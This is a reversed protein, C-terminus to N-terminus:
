RTATRLVTFFNPSPHRHDAEGPVTASGKLSHRFLQSSLSPAIWRLWRVESYEFIVGEPCRGRLASTITHSHPPDTAAKEDPSQHTRHDRSIYVEVAAAAAHDLGSGQGLTIHTLTRPTAIGRIDYRRSPGASDAEKWPSGKLTPSAPYRGSLLRGRHHPQSRLSDRAYDERAIVLAPSPDPRM